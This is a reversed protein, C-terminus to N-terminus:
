GALSHRHARRLEPHRAWWLAFPVAAALASDRAARYTDLLDPEVTAGVFRYDEAYHMRIPVEDDLLWFDHDVVASPVSREGRDLVFVGEGARANYAYGWECAYREYDSLGAPGGLVRVRYRYRLGEREAALTDLWPQKREWMPEPEGALYRDFDSLEGGGEGRHRDSAVQYAPLTELRFAAATFRQAILANLGPVELLV